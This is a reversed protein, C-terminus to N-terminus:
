AQRNQRRFEACAIATALAVNLSESTKREEPYNPIYIKHSVVERLDRGIGKGENGMVILGRSALKQSYISEGDLFTGYVPFNKGAALTRVFDAPPTYHVQVRAIAGMTSQIAKPNYIDASNPSCIIHEIGFWDAVRVITGLNGPDQIDDLVISLRDKLLDADPLYDAQRFVGVVHQPNKLLSAKDIEAQSVEVIERAAIHSKGALWCDTAALLVCEFYPLLDSVLKNGEALFLHTEARYKKQGLSKILKIKNKSLM